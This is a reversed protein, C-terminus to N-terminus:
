FFPQKTPKSHYFVFKVVKPGGQFLNKRHGHVYVHLTVGNKYFM